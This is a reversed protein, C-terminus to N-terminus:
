PYGAQDLWRRASDQPSGSLETAANFAEFAAARCRAREHNPLPAIALLLTLYLKYDAAPHERDPGLRKSMVAMKEAALYAARLMHGEIQRNEVRRERRRRSRMHSRESYTTSGPLSAQQSQAAEQWHRYAHCLQVLERFDSWMANSVPGQKFKTWDISPQWYELVDM